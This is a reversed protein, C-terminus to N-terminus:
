RSACRQLAGAPQAGHEADTRELQSARVQLGLRRGTTLLDLDGDGDADAWSMSGERVQLSLGMTPSFATGTNVSVLGHLM